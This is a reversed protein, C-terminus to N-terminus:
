RQVFYVLQTALSRPDQNHLIDDPRFSQASVIRVDVTGGPPIPVLLRIPRSPYQAATNQCLLATLLAVLFRPFFARM